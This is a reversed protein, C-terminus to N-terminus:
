VLFYPVVLWFAPGCLQVGMSVWPLVCVEAEEREVARANIDAKNGALAIVINPSAQRQLEMVWSKARNFSEQICRYCRYGNYVSSYDGYIKPMVM